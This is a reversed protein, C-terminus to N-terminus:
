RHAPRDRRQFWRQFARAVPGILALALMGWWSLPTFAVLVFALLICSISGTATGIRRRLDPDTGSGPHRLMEIELWLLALSILAINGLYIGLSLTDSDFGVIMGSTVPLMVIALIWVFNARLMGGAFSRVRSVAGHHVTWYTAVLAFSM